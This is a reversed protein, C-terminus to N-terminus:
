AAWARAKNDDSFEQALSRAPAGAFAEAKTRLERPLAKNAEPDRAVVTWADRVNRLCLIVEQLAEASAEHSAELTLQFMAAYFDGLVDATKGGIDPRLRAQLYMLIDLAKKVAVRRGRVDDELVAQQARYLFRIAGDYLAIILDVGTAGALAQDRYNNALYEQTM